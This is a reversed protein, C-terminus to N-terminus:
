RRLAEAPEIRMARWAPVVGGFFGGASSMAVSWFVAALDLAPTWGNVLAVGVTALLGLSAGVAGGFVGLLVTEGLVQSGLDVPTAGLARRLGFEATRTAVSSGAAVGIVIAGVILAAISVALSLQVVSDEIRLRFQDPDLLSTSTVMEPRNPRLALPLQGAITGAAGPAVEVLVEPPIGALWAESVSLPVLISGLTDLGRSVADYSGIVVVPEGDLLIQSGLRVGPIDRLVSDPVLAVPIARDEHILDYLRGEVIRPEIVDLAAPTAGSVRVPM